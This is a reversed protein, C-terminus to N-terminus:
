HTLPPPKRLTSVAIAIDDRYRGQKAEQWANAATFVLIECASVPHMGDIAFLSKALVRAIEDPSMYDMM